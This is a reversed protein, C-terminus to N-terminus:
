SDKKPNFEPKPAPDPRSTRTSAADRMQKKNESIRDATTQISKWISTGGADIISKSIREIVPALHKGHDSLWEACLSAEASELASLLDFARRQLLITLQEDSM